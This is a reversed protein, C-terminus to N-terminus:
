ELRFEVPLLVQRHAVSLRAIRAAARRAADDLLEHGSSSAVEIRALYGADDLTLLLVVRGELGLRIAERPYFEERELAALASKLARGQLQQPRERASMGPASPVPLPLPQATPPLTAAALAAPVAPAPLPPEDVVTALADTQALPPLRVRLPSSTPVPAHWAAPLLILGHLMLSISLAYVF